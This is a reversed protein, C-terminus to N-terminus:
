VNKMIFMWVWVPILCPLFPLKKRRVKEWLASGKRSILVTLIWLVSVVSSVFVAGILLSLTRWVGLYCGTIIFFIGDGCGLAGRTQSAGMLLVVGPLMGLLWLVIGIAAQKGDLKLVTIANICRIVTILIGVTGFAYLWDVRIKSKRYDQWSFAVLFVSFILEKM